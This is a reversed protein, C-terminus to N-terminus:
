IGPLLVCLLGHIHLPHCHCDLLFLMVWPWTVHRQNGFLSTRPIRSFKVAQFRCILPSYSLYRYNEFCWLPTILCYPVLWLLVGDWLLTLSLLLCSCTLRIRLCVLSTQSRCMLEDHENNLMFQLTAQVTPWM